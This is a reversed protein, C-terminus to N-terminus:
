WLRRLRLLLHLSKAKMLGANGMWRPVCFESEKALVSCTLAFEQMFHAWLLLTSVSYLPGATFMFDALFTLEAKGTSRDVYGQVM